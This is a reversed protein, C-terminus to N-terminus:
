SSKPEGITGLFLITGSFRERLAVLFPRDVVVAPPQSPASTVGITVVTVAAAETGEENVDVYTKQRVEDIYVDAPSMGTFDTGPAVGFAAGMGLAILPENMRTEYETRFRPLSLQVQAEQLGGIWDSWREADLSEVVANLDTDADPLVITMAFAGRGYLLEIVQVGAARDAVYSVRGLRNMMRVTKKTGDALTFPADRTQAREFRERWNGKFYIANILYMVIHEPIPPDIIEKIKGGTNQDVWRNITAAADPAGFDLTTVHADFYQRNTQLFSEEFPFGHRAWISNALRMDVNGDLGRLLDILDRYSQNIAPLETNGFQLAARMGDLTAGRAGNMTMGLAISASIPSLFVNPEPRHRLTERLIDFAFGNNAKIVEQEAVSLSRPLSKLEPEAAGDPATASECAAGIVAAGCLLLRTIRRMVPGTAIAM